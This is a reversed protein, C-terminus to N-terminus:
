NLSINISDQFRKYVMDCSDKKANNENAGLLYRLWGSYFHEMNRKLEEPRQTTYELEKKIAVIEKNLAEIQKELDKIKERETLIENELIRIQNKLSSIEINATATLNKKQYEAIASEYLVGWLIYTGFGFTLVLYFNISKYWAWENDARGIMIKLEHIGSDIKYALLADIILCVIVSMIVKFSSLKDTASKFLHPLIGFGFFIFAGLYTFILKKSAVFIGNVDFISNLLLIIDDSSGSNVIQQMSRFFSANIVSAYFFILYISIIVTLATYLWFRAGIYGSEIRGEVIESKKNDIETFKTKIQNEKDGIIVEKIHTKEIDLNNKQAEKNSINKEVDRKRKNEEETNNKEDVLHGERIARLYSELAMEDGRNVGAEIFGWERLPKRRLISENNSESIQLPQSEQIQEKSFLNNLM